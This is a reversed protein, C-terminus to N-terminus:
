SDDPLAAGRRGTLRAVRRLLASRMWRTYVPPWTSGRLWGLGAPPRALLEDYAGEFEAVWRAFGFEADVLAHAAIGMRRRATPDAALRGIAAAFASPDDTPVVLGTHGDRVAEHHPAIDSVVVPLGCAGAELVNLPFAELRAASALVDTADRLIPGVDTRAGLFHVRPGVGLTAALARLSPEADGDGCVLLHVDRGGGALEAVARVVTDIGKRHILSAVVTVVTAEPAIGLAARLGHASGESLRAADVGNYIVTTRDAPMGDALLGAVSARSVGVALTVQHLLMWRREPETPILHLHSLVPIREARAAVVLAPLPGLANAHVLRVGHRRILERAAAVLARSVPMAGDVAPITPAHHVEAGAARAADALAAANCWVVPRYRARDISAVLDVLCRESGRMWDQGDHVFLVPRPGAPPSAM